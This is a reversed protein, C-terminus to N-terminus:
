FPNKRSLTMRVEKLIAKAQFVESIDSIMPFLIKLGMPQGTIARLQRKFIDVEKLSFRIARLGLAPNMEEALDMHSAFKDGGIDLTRITVPNPAITRGV